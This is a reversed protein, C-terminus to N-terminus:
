RDQNTPPQTERQNRGSAEHRQKGSIWRGPYGFSAAFFIVQTAGNRHTISVSVGFLSRTVPTACDLQCNYQSSLIKQFHRCAQIAVGLRPRKGPHKAQTIQEFGHGGNSVIWCSNLGIRAHRSQLDDV